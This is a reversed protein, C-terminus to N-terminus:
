SEGSDSETLVLTFWAALALGALWWIQWAGWALASICAGATIQACVLARARREAIAGAGRYLLWLLMAGLAAGPLGLELWWQLPANHPHVPLAAGRPMPAIKGTTDRPPTLLLDFKKQGGPLSRSANFGYGALLRDMIQAGAFEWIIFRHNISINDSIAARNAPAFRDIAWNAVFPHALVVIVALGGLLRPVSRPGTLVLAAGMLAACLGILVSWAGLAVALGILLAPLALAVARKDARWLAAMAPWILVACIGLGRNYISYLEDGKLKSLDKVASLIPAEFSREIALLGFAVLLGLTLARALIRRQAATMARGAGILAVAGVAYAALSALKSLTEGPNVAWLASLASWAVVALLILAFRGPWHPIADRARCDRGTLALALVLAVWTLGKPALVALPPILLALTTVMRAMGAGLPINDSTQRSAPNM